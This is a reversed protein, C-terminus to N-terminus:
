LRYDVTVGITRPRVLYRQTPPTVNATTVGRVDGINEVFTTVSVDKMRLSFRADVLNYGGQSLGTLFTGPAQSIFRHSVVLTPTLPAALWNYSILNSVQWKSAGPLTSGSPVM